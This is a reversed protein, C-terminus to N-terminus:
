GQHSSKGKLAEVFEKAFGMAKESFQIRLPVDKFEGEDIRCEFVYLAAGSKDQIRLSSLSLSPIGLM